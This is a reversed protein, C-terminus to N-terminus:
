LIIEYFRGKLKSSFVVVSVLSVGFPSVFDKVLVREFCKCFKEVLVLGSLCHGKQRYLSASFEASGKVAGQSRKAHCCFARWAIQM